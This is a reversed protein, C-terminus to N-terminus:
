GTVRTLNVLVGPDLGTLPSRYRGPEGDVVYDVGYVTVTDIGVVATGVPFLATLGTVIQDQGRLTEFSQRPWVPVPALSTSVVGFVDNGDSDQGTVTRRHVVVTEGYVFGM